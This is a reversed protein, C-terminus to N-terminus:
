PVRFIKKNSPDRALQGSRFGTIDIHEFPEYPSIVQNPNNTRTALPYNGNSSPTTSPPPVPQPDTAAPDQGNDSAQIPSVESGTGADSPIPSTTLSTNDPPPNRCSSLAIMSVLGALGLRQIM